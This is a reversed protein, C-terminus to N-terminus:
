VLVAMCHVSRCLQRLVCCRCMGVAALAVGAWCPLLPQLCGSRRAATVFLTPLVQCVRGGQM